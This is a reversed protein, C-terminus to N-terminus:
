TTALSGTAALKVLECEDSARSAARTPAPSSGREPLLGSPGIGNNENPLLMTVGDDPAVVVVVVEVVVVAVAVKRMLGQDIRAEGLGLRSAHQEKLPRTSLSSAGQPSRIWFVAILLGFSLASFEMRTACKSSGRHHRSCPRCYHPPCLQLHVHACSASGLARKAPLQSPRYMCMVLLPFHM